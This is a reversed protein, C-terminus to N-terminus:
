SKQRIQWALRVRHDAVEHLEPAGFPELGHKALEQTLYRRALLIEDIPLYPGAVPDENLSALADARDTFAVQRRLVRTSIHGCSGCRDVWRVPDASVSHSVYHHGGEPAASCFEDDSGRAPASM